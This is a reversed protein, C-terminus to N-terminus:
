LETASAECVARWAPHSAEDVGALMDAVVDWRDIQECVSLLMSEPPAGILMGRIRAHVALKDESATHAHAFPAIRWLAWVGGDRSWILHRVVARAPPRVTSAGLNHRDP